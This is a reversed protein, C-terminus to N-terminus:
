RCDCGVSFRRCIGLCLVTCMQLSSLIQVHLGTQLWGHLLVSKQCAVHLAGHLLSDKHPPTALCGSVCVPM